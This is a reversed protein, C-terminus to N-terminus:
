AASTLVRLRARCPHEDEARELMAAVVPRCTGCRTGAGTCYAVEEPTSAGGSIAEDVESETVANCVCVFMKSKFMAKLKVADLCFGCATLRDGISM